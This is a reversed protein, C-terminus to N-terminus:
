LIERRLVEGGKGWGVERSHHAVAEREVWLFGGVWSHASLAMWLFLAAEDILSYTLSARITMITMLNEIVWDKIENSTPLGSYLAVQVKSQMTVM